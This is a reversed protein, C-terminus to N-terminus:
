NRFSRRILAGASTGGANLPTAHPVSGWGDVGEAGGGVGAGDQQQEQQSKGDEAKTKGWSDNRSGEIGRDRSGKTVAGWVWSRIMERIRRDGRANYLYFLIRPSAIREIDGDGVFCVRGGRLVLGMARRL